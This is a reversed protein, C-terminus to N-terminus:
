KNLYNFCVGSIIDIIADHMLIEDNTEEKMEYAAVLFSKLPIETFFLCILTSCCLFYIDISVIIIKKTVFNGGSPAKKMQDKIENM